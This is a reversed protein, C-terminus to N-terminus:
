GHGDTNSLCNILFETLDVSPSIFIVLLVVNVSAEINAPLSRGLIHWCLVRIYVIPVSKLLSGGM